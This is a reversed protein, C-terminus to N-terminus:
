TVTWVALANALLISFDLLRLEPELSFALYAAPLMRGAASVGDLDLTRMRTLEAAEELLNLVMDESWRAAQPDPHVGLLLTQPPRAGPADFHFSVGTTESAGPVQEAWQDISLGAFRAGVGAAEPSRLVVISTDPPDDPLPGDLGVWPTGPRHPLQSAVLQAADVGAGRAEAGALVVWLREVAPRVAAHRHLWTTAALPGALAPDAMSQGLPGAVDTPVEVIPVVPLHTGLLAGMQATLARVAAVVGSGAASGAHEDANSRRRVAQAIAGAALEELHRREGSVPIASRVGLDAARQLLAGLASDSMAALSAPDTDAVAAVAAFAAAVRARLEDLDVGPAVDLTPHALDAVDAPRAAGLLSVIASATALFEHLGVADARAGAGAGPRPVLRAGEPLTAAALFELQLRREFESMEQDGGQISLVSSLASMGLDALTVVVTDVTRDPVPADPQAPDPTGAVVVDAAFRYGAPDGLVHSVWADVRPEAASRTDPTRPWSTDPRDRDLEILVRHSIGPGSRPTRVVSVDPIPSQRDLADLAAAARDANGLVAQHVSEAMLLDGVADLADALTELEARIATRDSGSAGIKDILTNRGAADLEALAVGDAVNRAAVAEAPPGGADADPSNPLPHLKRTPLVYRAFQPGRDRLAREWRYGLLASMSQGSRMGDLVTLATRVRSSSLDIDLAEGAAGTRAVHGSRLIAATTAQPISPAHVFGGSARGGAPRLGEVWGFAAIHVGSRHRSRTADLRRTALSTAWADYRHTLADLAGAVARDLLDTPVGVLRGVSTRFEGFQRSVPVRLLESDAREAVADVIMLDGSVTRLKATAVEGATMNLRPTSTTTDVRLSEARLVRDNASSDFSMEIPRDVFERDALAQRLEISVGLEELALGLSARVLETNAAVILLAEFLTNAQEPDSRLKAFGGARGLRGHVRAVYDPDLPDGSPSGTVLPIPAVWDDDGLTVDVIAPRGAVGMVALTLLATAQQYSGAADRGEANASVVPGIAERVRFSRARDQHQLLTVLDAAPDGSDGLTFVDRASWRWFPAIARLTSAIITDTRDGTFAETSTIPLMGFPQDGIRLTPLPGGPRVHARFHDRVRALDADDVIPSMMQGLFHGLTPEWLATAVDAALLDHSAAAGDLRAVIGDPPLGLARALRDGASGEVVKAGRTQPLPAPPRTAVRDDATANTPTGAPVLGAGDTFAHATLVRELEAAATAPDTRHDVGTVVLRDYGSSLDRDDNVTITVAMGAKVAEDYDVLWRAADDIEIAGQRDEAPSVPGGDPAPGASLPRRVPASNVRLVRTGARYGVVTWRGPLLEALAARSPGPPRLPVEVFDPRGAGLRDANKPTTAAVVWAARAPNRGASFREFVDASEPDAWLETWYRRGAEQEAETLAEELQEIHAVDPYIRVRLEGSAYRTELRVPLMAIPIQADLASWPDVTAVVLDDLRDRVRGLVRDADALRAVFQEEASRATALMREASQLSRAGAGTRLRRDYEAAAAAVVRRQEVLETRAADRDALAGSLEVRRDALTGLQRDSLPKPTDPM